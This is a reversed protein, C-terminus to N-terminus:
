DRSGRNQWVSIKREDVWAKALATRSSLIERSRRRFSSFSCGSPTKAFLKKRRSGQAILLLQPEKKQMLSQFAEPTLSPRGILFGVRAIETQQQAEVPACLAVVILVVLLRSLWM